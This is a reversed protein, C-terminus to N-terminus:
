LLIKLALSLFPALQKFASKINLCPLPRWGRTNEDQLIEVVKDLREFVCLVRVLKM